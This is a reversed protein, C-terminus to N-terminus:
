TTPSRDWKRSRNFAAEAPNFPVITIIRFMRTMSTPNHYDDLGLGTDVLTLGKNTDILLCVMGNEIHQALPCQTFCNLMRITM